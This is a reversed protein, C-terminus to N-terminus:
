RSHAIWGSKESANSSGIEADLAEIPASEKRLEHDLRSPERARSELQRIRGNSRRCVNKLRIREANLSAQVRNPHCGSLSIGGPERVGYPESIRDDLAQM